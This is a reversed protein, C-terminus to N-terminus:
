LVNDVQITRINYLRVLGALSSKMGIFPREGISTSPCVDNAAMFHDAAAPEHVLLGPPAGIFKRPPAVDPSIPIAISFFKWASRFLVFLKRRRDAEWKAIRDIRRGQIAGGACVM